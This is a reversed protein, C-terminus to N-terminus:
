VVQGDLVDRIKHALEALRYPKRLWAMGELAADSEIGAHDAYGSTLMVKIEPYLSRVERALDGGSMGGPMIMDTFVLDMAPSGTLVDLAAPGNE